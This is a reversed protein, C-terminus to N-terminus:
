GNKFAVAWKAVQATGAGTDTTIYRAYTGSVGFATCVVALLLIAFTINRKKM